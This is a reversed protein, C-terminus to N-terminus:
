LTCSVADSGRVTTLEMSADETNIPKESIQRADEKKASLFWSKVYSWRWLVVFLFLVGITSGMVAGIIANSLSQGEGPLSSFNNFTIEKM